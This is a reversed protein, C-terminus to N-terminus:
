KKVKRKGNTIEEAEDFEGYMELDLPPLGLTASLQAVKAHVADSPGTRQLTTSRQSWNWKPNQKSRIGEVGRHHMTFFDSPFSPESTAHPYDGFESM